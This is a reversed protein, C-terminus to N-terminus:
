HSLCRSAQPGHRRDQLSHGGVPCDRVVGRCHRAALLPNQPPLARLPATLRAARTRCELPALSVASAQTSSPRLARAAKFPPHPSAGTLIISASRNIVESCKPFTRPVKRPVKPRFKVVVCRKNRKESKVGQ